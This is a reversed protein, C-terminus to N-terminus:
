AYNENLSMMMSLYSESGVIINNGKNLKPFEGETELVKGNQLVTKSDGLVTVSGLKGDVNLIKFVSGNVTAIIDTKYQHPEIEFNPYCEIIGENVINSARSTIEVTKEVVLKRFPRCIFSAKFKNVLGFSEEDLDEIEINDVIWKLNKDSDLILEGTGEAFFNYVPLYNGEDFAVSLHECEVVRNEYAKTDIFIDGNRGVVSVRTKVKRLQPFNNKVLKFNIDSLHNNNYTYSM